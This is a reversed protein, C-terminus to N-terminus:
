LEMSNKYLVRKYKNHISSLAAMMIMIIIMCHVCVWCAWVCMDMDMCTFTHFTSNCKMFVNVYFLNSHLYSFISFFICLTHTHRNIKTWQYWHFQLHLLLLLLLLMTCVHNISDSLERAQINRHIHKHTNFKKLKNSVHISHAVIERHAILVRMWMFVCVFVDVDVYVYVSVCNLINIFKLTSFCM